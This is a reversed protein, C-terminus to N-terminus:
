SGADKRAERLSSQKSELVFCGRKYLDIRGARTSGDPHKFDVRREFVYDNYQNQQSSFDPRKLGLAACLREIFPQTNAIESGGSAKVDAILISLADTDVGAGSIRMGAVM